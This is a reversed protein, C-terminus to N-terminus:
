TDENGRKRLNEIGYLLERLSKLAAPDNTLELGDQGDNMTDALSELSTASGIAKDASAALDFCQIRPLTVIAKRTIITSAPEHVTDVSVLLREPLLAVDLPNGALPVIQLHREKESFPHTTAPIRFKFIAPVAECACFIEVTESQWSIIDSLGPSESNRLYQPKRYAIYNRAPIGM